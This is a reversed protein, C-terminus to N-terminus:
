NSLETRTTGVMMPVKASWKPANPIFPHADFNVGNITPEFRYGAKAIVTRQVASLTDQAV